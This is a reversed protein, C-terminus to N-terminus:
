RGQNMKIPRGVLAAERSKDGGAPQPTWWKSSRITADAIRAIVGCLVLRFRVCGAALSPRLCLVLPVLGSVERTMPSSTKFLVAANQPAPPFWVKLGGLRQSIRLIAMRVRRRTVPPEFGPSRGGGAIDRGRDRRAVANAEAPDWRM